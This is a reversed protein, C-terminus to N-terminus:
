IGADVWSFYLSSAVYNRVTWARLCPLVEKVRGKYAIPSPIRRNRLLLTSVRCRVAPLTATTSSILSSVLQEVRGGRYEYELKGKVGSVYFGLLTIYPFM